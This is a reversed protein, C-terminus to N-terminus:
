KGMANKIVGVIAMLAGGGVGGAALDGIIAGIDMGGAGEAMASAGGLMGLLQGGIGGGILGAIANGATGLSLKELAKGAATGGLAGAILQIILEM